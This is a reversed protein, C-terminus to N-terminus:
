AGVSRRATVRQQVEHFVALYQEAVAEWSNRAAARTAGAALRARREGDSTLSALERAMADVDGKPVVAASEGPTVVELVGGTDATLIACAAAMAELLVLPLGEDARSPLVFLDCSRMLGAVTARPALGLWDIRDGIGLAAAFAELRTREPGEGAIVMRQGPRARAYAELLLDFGKQPVLRGVALIFPDRDAPAAAGAFEAPDAGNRIVRSREALDCALFVELDALTNASCATVYDAGTVARELLRRAFPRRQFVAHEDMTLEGHVTVVLPLALRDHCELAYLANASVCHVQVVDAGFGRVIECAERGIRRRTLRFSVTAKAGGVPWRLAPRCVDIGDLRERRPLDRPWRNTVVVSQHGAREYECALRRVVEEVGGVHPAYSSAFVAIRM